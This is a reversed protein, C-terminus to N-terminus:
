FLLLQTQSITIMKILTNVKETTLPQVLVLILLNQTLTIIVLTVIVEVVTERLIEPLHIQVLIKLTNICHHLQLNLNPQVTKLYTSFVFVHLNLTAIKTVSLAIKKSSLNQKITLIM